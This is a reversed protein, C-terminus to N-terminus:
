TRWPRFYLNEQSLTRYAFSHLCTNSCIKVQLREITEMNDKMQVSEIEKTTPAPDASHVVEREKLPKQFVATATSYTRKQPFDIRQPREPPAKAAAVAPRCAALSRRDNQKDGVTIAVFNIVKVV